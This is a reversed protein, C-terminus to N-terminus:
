ILLALQWCWSGGAGNVLRDGEPAPYRVADVELVGCGGGHVILAVPHVHEVASVMRHHHQVPRSLEDLGPALSIKLARVPHGHVRLAVQEKHIVQIVRDLLGVLVPVHDKRQARRALRAIRLASAPEVPRRVDRYLTRRTIEEDRVTISVGTDVLEVCAPIM